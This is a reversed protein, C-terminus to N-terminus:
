EDVREAVRAVVSGAVVVPHERVALVNGSVPARVVAVEEGTGASILVGIADGAEVEAWASLRPLFLGGEESRVRHVAADGVLRPRTVAAWHFPLAEDPLVGMVNLMNLVGETLAQGVSPTLRNGSGGELAITRPFQWAFTSPAAPGPTRAWVVNVNAHLALEASAAEGARVHAQPAEAFAPHAGRLEIIQDFSQLEQVLKFAVQNPAPGDVSGPFCRNLDQNFFPWRRVGRSAAVPNVCPFVEVTGRINEHQAGLVAAIAHAVRVGEPTDGRIGAVVAVRPGDAGVFRRRVIRVADGVPMGISFLVDNHISM